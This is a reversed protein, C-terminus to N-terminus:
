SSNVCILMDMWICDTSSKQAYVRSLKCGCDNNSDLNPWFERWMRTPSGNATIIQCPTLPEACFNRVYKLRSFTPSFINPFKTGWMCFRTATTGYTGLLMGCNKSLHLYGVGAQVDHTTGIMNSNNSSHGDRRYSATSQIRGDSKMRSKSPSRFLTIMRLLRKAPEGHVSAPYLQGDLLPIPASQFLGVTSATSLNTGHPPLRLTLADSCIPSM